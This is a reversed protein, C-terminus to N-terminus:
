KPSVILLYGAPDIDPLNSVLGSVTGSSSFEMPHSVLTVRRQGTAIMAAVEKSMLRSFSGKEGFIGSEVCPGALLTGILNGPVLNRGAEIAILTLDAIHGAEGLEGFFFSFLGLDECQKFFRDEVGKGSDILSRLASSSFTDAFFRSASNRLEEQEPTPTLTM